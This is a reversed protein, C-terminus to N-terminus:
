PLCPDLVLAPVAVYLLGVLFLLGLLFGGLALEADHESGGPTRDSEATVANWGVGAGRWRRYARWTTVAMAVAAVVTAAVTVTAAIPLGLVEAGADAHCLAEAALYVVMFHSIWIVPGALFLGTLTLFRRRASPTSAADPEVFDGSSTSM